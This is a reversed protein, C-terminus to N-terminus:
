DAYALVEVLHRGTNASNSTQNIRIYRVQHPNFQCPYGKSTAIERNDRKDAVLKWQIGDLSTEITFGYYRQDGFYPIVIVRAVQTPKELDVQWWATPNKTVDTAWYSDTDDAYGDNALQASFSPLAYSCSAAKGTTLSQMKGHKQQYSEYRKLIEEFDWRVSQENRSAIEINKITNILPRSKPLHLVVRSPKQRSPASWQVKIGDRMGKIVLDVPGFYTPLKMAKIEQGEALWWDPVAKLLHLEDNEEHVLMHRLLIAYNCAGTVHPITHSWAERRRYYIGEPFAHAASSHLLYWYFDEVVQQHEGRVLDSMTTYAGMYPHIAQVNGGGKWQVIGEIYGGAFENRLFRSLAAVRNDDRKFLETPWLIETNGWHTGGKEWSPPFHKLGTKQWAKDIDSRYEQAEKLWQRAEDIKGLLRAADATCLMARLNWFDYGVIHNKAEWLFEGDAPATPLLGEFASGVTSKRAQKAWEVARKMQPYVRELFRNDGTIKAYNWLTWVAQGNADFQNSQSEFRGDPRQRKLYLEIATAATKFFGAEELEMVQYAGDRIYFTDYFNEGARVEGHDNAILQCVHAALLAETAKRCPVQIHAAQNMVNQWYSVTRNLWLKASATDFQEPNSIPFFPYRAAVEMSQGAKLNWNWSYIRTHTLDSKPERQEEPHPPIIIQRNPAISLRAEAPVSSGNTVKIQIWNLFNEGDEPWEFAKQWSKSSPLPTAWIKIDYRVTGDQATILMIPMWGNLATKTQQCSLPTLNRGYCIQIATRGSVWLENNPSIRTGHTYDKLGVVNWSNEFYDFNNPSLAADSAHSCCFVMNIAWLVAFIGQKSFKPLICKMIDGMNVTSRISSRYLQCSSYLM